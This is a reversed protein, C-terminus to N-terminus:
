SLQPAGQRDGRASARADCGSRSVAPGQAPQLASSGCDRRRDAADPPRHRASARARRARRPPGRRARPGTTYGTAAIVADPRSAPATRSCWRAATSGRSRPSPCSGARASPRRCSRRRDHAHHGVCAGAGRSGRDARPMGYPTLDGLSRGSCCDTSPTSSGRPPTSWRSPSCRPRCRDSSGRFSTPPRASRSGCPRHARERRSRRRDRRRFQRGSSSCTADPSPAPAGTSRRTCSTVASATRALGTRGFRPAATARHRDRGAAGLAHRRRLDRTWSGDTVTWDGCRPPSSPAIGSAGPTARASLRGHRGQRGLSRIPRPIRMGPLSSQVASHAPAAARVAGALDRRRQRRSRRGPHRSGQASPVRGRGPRGSGRRRRAGRCGGRGGDASSGPPPTAGGRAAPPPVGDARGRVRAGAGNHHAVSRRRRVGASAPAADVAPVPPRTTPQAAPRATRRRRSAAVCRGVM